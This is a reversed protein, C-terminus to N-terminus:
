AFDHEKYQDILDNYEIEAKDVFQFQESYAIVQADKGNRYVLQTKYGLADLRDKFFEDFHDVEQLCLLDPQDAEIEMM